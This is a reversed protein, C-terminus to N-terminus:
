KRDSNKHRTCFGIGVRFEFLKKQDTLVDIPILADANLVFNYICCQLGLSAEMNKWSYPNVVRWDDSESARWGLHHLGAGAGIRLYVPGGMKLAVGFLASARIASTEGSNHTTEDTNLFADFLSFDSNILQNIMNKNTMFSLYWGASGGNGIDGINFGFFPQPGLQDSKLLALNGTMFFAGHSLFATPKEYQTEIYCNRLVQNEEITVKKVGTKWGREVRLTHKGNPLYVDVPTKGKYEGDVYVRNKKRDAEVTVTQGFSFPITLEPEEPDLYITKELQFRGLRRLFVTHAGFPLELTVPTKGVLGGDIYVQDGNEDSTITLICARPLQLNYTTEEGEKVSIRQILPSYGDSTLELDYMGVPLTDITIPTQGYTVGDINVTSKPISNITIKGTIPIFRTHVISNLIDVLSDQDPTITRKYQYLSFLEKVSDVSIHNDKVEIQGTALLSDGKEFAVHYVGSALKESEYPVKGVERGNLYFKVDEDELGYNDIIKMYGYAPSLAIDVTESKGKFLEVVGSESHYLPHDMSWHYTGAIVPVTRYGSGISDGNLYIVADNPSPRFVINCSGFGKPEKPLEKTGVILIRYTNLSEVEGHLLEPIYILTNGLDEHKITLYNIGPSVWLLIEGGETRRERIHSGMDPRFQFANRDQALINQTAIRLVACNQGGNPRETLNNIKATMDLPLHEVSRVEYDQAFSMTAMAILLLSIFNSKKM